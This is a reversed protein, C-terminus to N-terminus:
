KKKGGSVFVKTHFTQGLKRFAYEMGEAVEEAAEHALRRNERRIADNRKEIGSVIERGRRRVDGMYLREKIREPSPLERGLHYVPIPRGEPGTMLFIVWEDHEDRALELDPDYEKVAQAASHVYIPANGVGPLWINPM